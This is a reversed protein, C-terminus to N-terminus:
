IYLDGEFIMNVQIIKTMLRLYYLFKPFKYVLTVFYLSLYKSQSESATVLCTM